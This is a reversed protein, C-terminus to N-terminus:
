SFENFREDYPVTVTKGAVHVGPFDVISETGYAAAGDARWSINTLTAPSREEIKAGQTTYM